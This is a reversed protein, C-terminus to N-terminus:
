FYDWVESFLSFDELIEWDPGQPSEPMRMIAEWEELDFLLGVFYQMTAGLRGLDDVTTLIQFLSRKAAVKIPFHERMVIYKIHNIEEQCMGLKQVLLQWNLLSEYIFLIDGCEILRNNNMLREYKLAVKIRDSFKRAKINESPDVIYDNVNVCVRFPKM